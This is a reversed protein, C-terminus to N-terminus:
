KLSVIILVATILVVIYTCIQLALSETQYTTLTSPDLSTLNSILWNNM